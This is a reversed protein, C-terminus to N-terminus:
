TAAHRSYILNPGVLPPLYLTQLFRTTNDQLHLLAQHPSDQACFRNVPACSFSVSLTGNVFVLEYHASTLGSSPDGHKKIMPDDEPLRLWGIQNRHIDTLM